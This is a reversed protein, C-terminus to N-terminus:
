VIELSYITKLFYSLEVKVFFLEGIKHKLLYVQYFTLLTVTSLTVLKIENYELERNKSLGAFWV